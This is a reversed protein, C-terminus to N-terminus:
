QSAPEVRMEIKRDGRNPLKKEHDALILQEPHWTTTESVWSGPLRLITM